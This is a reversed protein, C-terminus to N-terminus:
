GLTPVVEPLDPQASPEEWRWVPEGNGPQRRWRKHMWVWQEPYARIQHEIRATFRATLQAAAADLNGALPAVFPPDFSLQM